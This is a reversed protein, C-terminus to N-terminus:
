FFSRQELSDLIGTEKQSATTCIHSEWLEGAYLNTEEKGDM